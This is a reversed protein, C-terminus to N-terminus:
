HLFMLSWKGSVKFKFGQEKLRGLVKHARMKLWGLTIKRKGKSCERVLQLMHGRLHQFSPMSDRKLIGFRLTKKSAFIYKARRGLLSSAEVQQFHKEIIPEQNVWRSLNGVPVKMDESVKERARWVKMGRAVM